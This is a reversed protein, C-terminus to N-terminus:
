MRSNCTFEAQGDGMLLCHTGAFAPVYVPVGYSGRIQPRVM